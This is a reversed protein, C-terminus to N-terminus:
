APDEPPRMRETLRALAALLRQYEEAFWAHHEASGAMLREM